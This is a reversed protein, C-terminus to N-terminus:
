VNMVKDYIKDIKDKIDAIDDKLQNIALDNTEKLVYKELKKDLDGPTVFIKYNACFM